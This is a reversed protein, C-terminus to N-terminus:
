SNYEKRRITRIDKSLIKSRFTVGYILSLIRMRTAVSRKMDEARAVQTESGYELGAKSLRHSTTETTSLFM